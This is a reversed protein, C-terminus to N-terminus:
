RNLEERTEVDSELRKYESEVREAATNIDYVLTRLNGPAKPRDNIYTRMLGAFDYLADVCDLTRPDVKPRIRRLNSQSEANEDDAFPSKRADFNGDMLVTILPEAAIDIQTLSGRLSFKEPVRGSAALLLNRASLHNPAKEVIEKLKNLVHSNRLYNIGNERGLVDQVKDFEDLATQLDAHRSERTRTLAYADDFNSISFIQIGILAEAGNAVLLDIIAESNDEPIAVIERDGNQAGRIKGYIGGVPKVLGDANMDGTLAVKQSLEEGSILSDVLLACAVAASPGDKSSYQNEFAIEIEGTYGTGHRVAIFKRVEKLAAGMMPGVDQNFKLDLESLKGARDLTANMQSLKGAFRGTNMDEVLLGHLSAQQQGFEATASEAGTDEDVGELILHWNAALNRKEALHRHFALDADDPSFAALLDVLRVQVIAAADEDSEGLGKVLGKGQELLDGIPETTSETLEDDKEIEFKAVFVERAEPAISEALAIARLDTEADTEESRAFKVLFNTLVEDSPGKVPPEEGSDEESKGAMKTFDCSVLTAVLASFVALRVAGVNKLKSRMEVNKGDNM